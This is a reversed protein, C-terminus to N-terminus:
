PEKRKPAKAERKAYVDFGSERKTVTQYRTQRVGRRKKTDTEFTTAKRKAAQNKIAVEEYDGPFVGSAANLILKRSYTRYRRAIRGDSDDNAGVREAFPVRRKLDGDKKKVKSFVQRAKQLYPGTKYAPNEDTLPLYVESAFRYYYEFQSVQYDYDTLSFTGGYIKKVKKKEAQREEYARTYRDKTIQGVVTPSYIFPICVYFADDSAVEGVEMQRYRESDRFLNSHEKWWADFSGKTVDGWQKYFEKSKKLAEQIEEEGSQHALRLFLFWFRVKNKLSVKM